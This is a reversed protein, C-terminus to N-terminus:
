VVQSHAISSALLDHFIFAGGATSFFLWMWWVGKQWKEEKRKTSISSAATLFAAPDSFASTGM